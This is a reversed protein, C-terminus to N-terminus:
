TRPRTAMVEEDKNGELEPFYMDSDMQPAWVEGLDWASPHRVSMDFHVSAAVLPPLVLLLLKM